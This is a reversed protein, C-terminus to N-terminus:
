NTRKLTVHIDINGAGNVSVEYCMKILENDINYTFSPIIIERNDIYFYEDEHQEVKHYYLRKM